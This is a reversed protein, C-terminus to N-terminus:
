VTTSTRIQRHGNRNQAERKYIRTQIDESFQLFVPLTFISQCAPRVWEDCAMFDFSDSVLTKFEKKRICEHTPSHVSTSMNTLKKLASEDFSTIEWRGEGRRGGEM